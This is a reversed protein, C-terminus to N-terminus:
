LITTGDDVFQVPIEKAGTKKQAAAEVTGLDDGVAIVRGGHVAVWKNPYKVSLKKYNRAIWRYDRTYQASPLPLKSTTKMLVGKGPDYGRDPERFMQDLYLRM